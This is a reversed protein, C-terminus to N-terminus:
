LLLLRGKRFLQGGGSLRAHCPAPLIERGKNGNSNHCNRGPTPVGRDPHRNTFLGCEKKAAMM